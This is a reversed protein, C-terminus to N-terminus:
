VLIPQKKEIIIEVEDISKKVVEAIQESTYGKEHMTVIVDALTNDRIGQSLNCM